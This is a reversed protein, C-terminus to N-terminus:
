VEAIIGTMKEKCIKPATRSRRPRAIPAISNHIVLAADGVPRGAPLAPNVIVYMCYSPVTQSHMVVHLPPLSKSQFQLHQGNCKNSNRAFCCVHQHIVENALDSRTLHLQFEFESVQFAPDLSLNSSCVGVRASVLGHRYVFDIASSSM